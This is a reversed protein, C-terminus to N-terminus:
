LAMEWASWKVGRWNQGAAVVCSLGSTNTILITWTAGDETAIVELLANRNTLAMVIPSEGYAKALREIAEQHPLCAPQQAVVPGTGGLLAAIM